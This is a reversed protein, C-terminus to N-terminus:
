FEIGNRGERGGEKREERKGEKIYEKPGPLITCYLTLSPSAYVFCLPANELLSPCLRSPSCLFPAFGGMCSVSTVNTTFRRIVISAISWTEM